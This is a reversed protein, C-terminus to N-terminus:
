GRLRRLATVDTTQWAHHIRHSLWVMLIAAIGLDLLLGLEMFTPLTGALSVALVVLGNEIAVLAALQSLLHRRAVIMVLGLHISALAYFFLVTRHIVQTPGLLHIVHGVALVVLVALGYGWLPLPYDRRFAAPWTRLLRHILGPILGGKVILTALGVLLTALTLPGSAWVMGSLVVGEAALYWVTYPIHRSWLLGMAALFLLLGLDTM